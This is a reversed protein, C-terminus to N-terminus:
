RTRNQHYLHHYFHGWNTQLRMFPGMLNEASGEPPVGLFTANQLPHSCRATQIGIKVPILLLLPLPYKYGRGGFVDVGEGVLLGHCGLFSSTVGEALIPCKEWSTGSPSRSANHPKQEKLLTFHALFYALCM